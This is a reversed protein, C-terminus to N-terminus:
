FDEEPATTISKLLDDFYSNSSHPTGNVVVQTFDFSKGERSGLCSFYDKLVSDYVRFIRTEGRDLPVFGVRGAPNFSLEIIRRGTEEAIPPFVRLDPMVADTSTLYFLAKRDRDKEAHVKGIWEEMTCPEQALNFEMAYWRSDDGLVLAAVHWRWEPVTGEGLRGITFIKGISKPSLGMRRAALQVAMARGYCFGMKNKPDYRKLESLRAVSHGAVFDYLRKRESGNLSTCRVPSSGILNFYCTALDEERQQLTAEKRAEAAHLPLPFLALLLLLLATKALLAIRSIFAPEKM